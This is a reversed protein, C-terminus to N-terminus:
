VGYAFIREEHRKKQMVAGPRIRAAEHSLFEPPIVSKPAKQVIVRLEFYLESDDQTLFTIATGMKGMRGTRGIRHIYDEISKAMDYNVVLSVNKIDIGRGAVDTAILIDRGNKKFQSIAVERQEQNKGGHLAVCRHGLIELRRSLFDVTKKQNVFIIIPPEYEGSNLIDLLCRDKDSEKLMVLKQTVTDAAQGAQGVTITGPRKLYGRALKEVASPMTASFMTTQRFKGHSLYKAPNEAAESDPKSMNSPLCQLIFQLDEEFNLDIMRDAEDLVIGFCQNLALVHQELCDRLRGPTAIVIEAGQRMHVSQEAMSHGGVIAVCRLGLPRCFRKTESEIQLALERTPALVLGYPGNLMNAENLPPLRLIQCIMPLVFAATKGSGTEAIGILDRGSMIVPIAQRQIPTPDDYGISQLVDHLKRPFPAESWYRLPNPMQGGTTSINFDEKIIRWDRDQMEDLTKEAWHRDDFRDGHGNGTMMEIENGFADVTKIVSSKPTSKRPMDQVAYNKLTDDATDWDFNVQREGRRVKRDTKKENGLYRERVINRDAQSLAAPNIMDEKMGSETHQLKSSETTKAINQREERSLFKPKYSLTDDEARRKLLERRVSPDM